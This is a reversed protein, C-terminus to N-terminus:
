WIKSFDFVKSEECEDVLFTVSENHTNAIKVYKDNILEYVKASEEKPDVLIYYNVGEQQYINFKIGQDKKSTSKSLIEFIIKPPKTIFNNNKPTHCIVSNDPQLITNEKVKWDIPLLVQCKKCNQFLEYLQYAIKNSINQHKITPAPSMAYPIGHILEWKGEWHLYDQYTYQPLEEEKLAGM